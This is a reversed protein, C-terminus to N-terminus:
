ELPIDIIMLDNSINYPANLLSPSSQGANESGDSDGPLTCELDLNDRWSCGSEMAKAQPLNTFFNEFDISPLIRNMVFAAREKVKPTGIRGREGWQVIYNEWGPDDGTPRDMFAIDREADFAYKMSVDTVLQALDERPSTYNYDDNALDDAFEKSIQDSDWESPIGYSINNMTYTIDPDDGFFRVRAYIKMRPSKLDFGDEDNLQKSVIDGGYLVAAAYPTLTSDIQASSALLGSFYDNAHGLEHFLVRALPIITDDITRETDDLLSLSRYARENNKIFRAPVIFQLAERYVTRSDPDPSVTRKEEITLWLFRPDVFIASSATCYYSPRINYSVIVRTVTRFLPLLLSLAKEPMNQLALEFNTGMWPHSVLLRDTIKKISPAAGDAEMGILPLQSLTCNKPCVSYGSNSCISLSEAYASNPNYVQYPTYVIGGPNFDASGGDDSACSVAGLGSLLLMQLLIHKSYYAALQATKM